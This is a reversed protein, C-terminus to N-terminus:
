LEVRLGAAMGFSNPYSKVSVNKNISNLAFRTIPSIVLSLKKNLKYEGGINFLGTFYIKKLGHLHNIVETENNSSDQVLTEIIGQLLINTSIGASAFFKFKGKQISYKIAAPINLYRLTHNASFAYLSDGVNPSSSFSPLVYGYGSSANYRYKVSGTNEREAYITKPDILITTSSYSMGSQFSWHSGLIYDILVGTTSSLDPKEEGKLDNGTNSYPSINQFRYSPFDRSFFIIASWRPLKNNAPKGTNTINKKSFTMVGMDKYRPLSTLKCNASTVVTSREMPNGPSEGPESQTLNKDIFGKRDDGPLQPDHQRGEKIRGSIVREVKSGDFNSHTHPAQSKKLTVNATIEKNQGPKHNTIDIILSKDRGIKSQPDHIRLGLSILLLISCATKLWIFRRGKTTKKTDLRENIDRWAELSHMEEHEEIANKFLKDIYHLDEGM